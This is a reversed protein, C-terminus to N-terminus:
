HQQQGVQATIHNAAHKLSRFFFTFKEAAGCAALCPGCLPFVYRDIQRRHAKCRRQQSINEQILISRTLNRLQGLISGVCDNQRAGETGEVAGKRSRERHLYTVEPNSM